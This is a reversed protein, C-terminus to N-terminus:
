LFIYIKPKNIFYIQFRNRKVRQDLNYICVKHSRVHRRQGTVYMKGLSIRGKKQYSSIELHLLKQLNLFSNKM